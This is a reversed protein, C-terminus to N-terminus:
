YDVLIHDDVNKVGPAAWAADIAEDHEAWSGVIGSLKVTGNSTEVSLSEADLKANRKFADKIEHRIDGADPIMGVLEILDDVGTVGDINGAVQEAEDRQFQWDATGKLTVYGDVVVADVTSPVLSDLTLAQLVAGRLDADERRHETLIRVQLDNKVSKVGYIREAAKTAERKENFSGVTGRLTVVGDEASAAIAASDVKPDWKLEDRVYLELDDNSM